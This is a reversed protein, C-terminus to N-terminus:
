LFHGSWPVLTCCPAGPRGAWDAAESNFVSWWCPGVLAYKFAAVMCAHMVIRSSPIIHLARSAAQRCVVFGAEQVHLSLLCCAFSRGAASSSVMYRHCPAIYMACYSAYTASASLFGIFVICGLQHEDCGRTTRSADNDQWSATKRLSTSSWYAEAHQLHCGQLCCLAM